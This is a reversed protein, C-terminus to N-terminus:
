ETSGKFVDLLDQPTEDFDDAIWVRGTWGGPKRPETREPEAVLRVVLRDGRRIRIDEGAEARRILKSLKTKADHITFVEM